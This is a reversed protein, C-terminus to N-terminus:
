DTRRCANEEIALAPFPESELPKSRRSEFAEEVCDVGVVGLGASM